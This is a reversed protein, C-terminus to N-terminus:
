TLIRRALLACGGGEGGGEPEAKPMLLVTAWGPTIAVPRNRCMPTSFKGQKQKLHARSPSSLSHPWPSICGPTLMQEVCCRLQHEFIQNWSHETM